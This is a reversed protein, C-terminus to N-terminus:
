IIKCVSQRIAVFIAVVCHGMYGFMGGFNRSSRNIKRGHSNAPFAVALCVSVCVPPNNLVVKRSTKFTTCGLDSRIEFEIKQVIGIRGSAPFYCLNM